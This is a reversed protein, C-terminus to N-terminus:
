KFVVKENKSLVIVTSSAIFLAIKSLTSYKVKVSFFLKKLRPSALTFHWCFLM